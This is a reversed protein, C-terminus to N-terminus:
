SRWQNAEALNQTEYWIKPSFLSIYEFHKFKYYSSTKVITSSNTTINKYTEGTMRKEELTQHPMLIDPGLNTAPGNYNLEYLFISGPYGNYETFAVLGFISSNTLDRQMFSPLYLEASDIFVYQPLSTKNFPFYTLFTTNFPQWSLSYANKNNAVLSFINNSAVVTSNSRIMHAISVAESFEGNVSFSFHYGPLPGAENNDPNLPSMVLNLVLISILTLLILRSKKVKSFIRKETRGRCRLTFYVYVGFLLLIVAVLVYPQAMSIIVFSLSKGYLPIAILVSVFIIVLPFTKHSINLDKNKSITALTAIFVYPFAILSNQNGIYAGMSQDIFFVYFLWPSAILLTEISGLPLMGMLLILILWYLLVLVFGTFTFNISFLSSFSNSVQSPYAQHVVLQPIVIFEVLRIAAYSIISILGFSILTRRPIDTWLPLLTRKSYFSLLFFYVVIGLLIFPFIELTLCGLVFVLLSLFYKRQLMLYFLSFFELPLLSEWHFDFLVGSIISSNFLFLLIMLFMIPRSSIGIKRMILYIPISSLSLFLSQIIFLTIAYPAVGYIYSIPIALYTSHIQLFSNINSTELDGTEFLLMGHTTTWLSQMTIGLDWNGTYFNVYRLYSFLSFIITYFVIILALIYKDSKWERDVPSDHIKNEFNSM